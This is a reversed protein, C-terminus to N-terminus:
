DDDNIEEDFRNLVHEIAWEYMAFEDKEEPATPQVYEYGTEINQVIFHFGKFKNDWQVSIRWQPQEKNIWNLAVDLSPVYIINIKKTLEVFACEGLSMHAQKYNVCDPEMIYQLESYVHYGCENLKKALAFSVNNSKNM